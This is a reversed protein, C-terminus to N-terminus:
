YDWYERDVSLDWPLTSLNEHAGGADRGRKAQRSSDSARAECCRSISRAVSECLPSTRVDRIGQLDIDCSAWFSSFFDFIKVLSWFKWFKLFDFFVWFKWFILIKLIKLFDFFFWFKWFIEFIKLIKLFDFFNWFKWFILFIEFVSIKWFKWFILFIEFNEFVSFNRFWFRSLLGAASILRHESRECLDTSRLPWHGKSGLYNLVWFVRVIRRPCIQELSM